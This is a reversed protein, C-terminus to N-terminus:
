VERLVSQILSSVRLVKDLAGFSGRKHHVVAVSRRAIVVRLVFFYQM